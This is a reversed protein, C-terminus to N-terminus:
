QRYRREPEDIGVRRLLEVAEKKAADHSKGFHWMVVEAIQEGVTRVPNLSTMPDQFVMAIKKGRVKLWQSEATYATMDEGHFILHGSEVRGNRDLMGIFSKTFVSKGSGSEGVIAVTEGEYVDLSAGRIATLTQGRLNFSIVIDQASLLLPGKHENM